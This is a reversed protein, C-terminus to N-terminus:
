VFRRLVPIAHAEPFTEGVRLLDRNLSVVITSAIAVLVLGLFLPPSLEVQVLWLAGAAVAVTLYSRTYQRDFPTIGVARALGLQNLVNQLVLTASIAAAAGAAGYRPILTADLGLTVALCAMNVVFVYRLRGYTQLTLANFGLAANVYLGLSLVALLSASSAYRSGFLFVTVPRALPGTVAFIPFSLVTLWVATHWYAREMGGQDRRSYLRAALPAFLMTFSFIVLQNLLALPMIVRLSAVAESGKFKELLMISVSFLTVSLIEASILPIGFGFVERFPMSISRLHLGDFLGRERFLRFLMVAYGALAAATTVVFGAALFYVGRHGAILAAIVALRLGPGFLYKRFFISRPRAFVAFCAEVVDDLAELPAGIVLILTLSIAVKQDVWHNLQSQFVLMAVFFAVASLVITASAMIITGFLKGYERKEDYISLFRTISQGHGLAVLRAVLDAAALGYAFAGFDTKSLQRAILVQTLSTLVLSILRGGFLLSSGRIQTAAEPRPTEPDDVPADLTRLSLAV